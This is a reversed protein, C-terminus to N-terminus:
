KTPLVLMFIKSRGRLLAIRADRAQEDLKQKSLRVRFLGGPKPGDVIVLNQEALAETIQRATATEAFRVLVFAGDVLGTQGSATGYTAAPVNRNVLTGITVAQFVLVVAAAAAAWRVAGASPATFFDEVSQWIQSFWNLRSENPTPQSQVDKSIGAILRDIARGSPGSVAENGVVVEHRESRILDLQATMEPHRDLYSAVQAQEASNLRGTVYWPLLMEIEERETPVHEHDTMAM